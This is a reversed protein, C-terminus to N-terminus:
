RRGFVARWRRGEAGLLIQDQAIKLVMYGEVSEGERLIRNNIVAMREQADPAWAIAQIKLRGEPLREADMGTAPPAAPASPMRTSPKENVPSSLPQRPRDPSQRGDPLQFLERINTATKAGGAPKQAPDSLPARDLDKNLEFLDINEEMRLSAAASSPDGAGQPEGRQDPHITGIRQTEPVGSSYFRSLIVGGTALVLIIVGLRILRGRRWAFRVSRHVAQRAHWARGAATGVPMNADDQELKKLARLITSM